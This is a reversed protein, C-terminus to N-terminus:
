TNALSAAFRHLDNDLVNFRNKAKIIEEKNFKRLNNKRDKFPENPDFPNPMLFVTDNNDVDVGPYSIMNVLEFHALANRTESENILRTRLATFEQLQTNTLCLRAANRTMNLKESFDRLSYFISRAVKEDTCKSVLVFVSCLSQEVYAWRSIAHGLAQYFAPTEDAPTITPGM